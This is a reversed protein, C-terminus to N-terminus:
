RRKGASDAFRRELRNLTTELSFETEIKKRGGAALKRRLDVNEKLTALTLALQQANGSEVLMGSVGDSVLEGIAPLDGAVVPTGAAMAEMLAVPIGDRDGKSDQRCPLAFVDAQKMLAPVRSNSVEGLWVLWDGCHLDGATKKLRERDEGDGAITLRIPVGRGKLEAAAAILTDIGKKEVLRCVTLIRLAEGNRSFERAEGPEVGCRIVEYKGTRDPYKSNFFSQHWKSICSVFASRRLKLKLIARRQFIDNAHGTFSFPIKLQMAAYMGITTPAHAFHCHIHRIKRERLQGALGVAALAQMPLKLRSKVPFREKPDIADRIATGMTIAFQIPHRAAERAASQLTDRMRVGYLTIRDAILDDLEGGSKEVPNLTVASVNWRRNRLGRVERYVFTESLRPFEGAIYAIPFKEIPGSTEKKGVGPSDLPPMKYEVMVNQRGSRRDMWYKIVGVASAFKGLITLLSYIGAQGAEVGRRRQFQFVRWGLVGYAGALALGLWMWHSFIGAVACAAIFAPLVEGWFVFSRVERVCFREPEDGHLEVNQAYGIANRKTRRWWAIFRTLAADHWTMEADIREIKWGRRGLRLCLEPEERAILQPNFGEQRLVEMRIMSDGGCWRAIGVPSDWELNLMRNYISREPYRERRRGCVVAIAPSSDLHACAREIWGQAVACDGDVFQVYSVDPYKKLVREMGADRGRAATFPMSRDLEVVDAGLSKALAVSGDSSGSDVYVVNRVRGRLSELCSRLRDGENRGIAVAAVKAASQASSVAGDKRLVMAFARVHRFFYPSQRALELWKGPRYMPLLLRAAARGLTRGGRESKNWQRWNGSDIIASEVIKTGPFYAHMESISPRFMTDIPDAHYPYHHPGSLFIFGGDPVMKMVVDCIEQRQFVHELLNSVMVSKVQLQGVQDLFSPDLLDGVIDVGDAEKIDLHLVKGGRARLPAFINADIHPQVKTRFEATSSGVNLLPFLDGDAIEALREGLWQSELIQM